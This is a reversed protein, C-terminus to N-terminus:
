FECVILRYYNCAKDNWTGDSYMEVCKETGKGGPEGPYWNTFNLPNGNLLWFEGPVYGETIGLYAHTNQQKVLNMIADNEDKRTPSAINGHAAKCIKVIDDFEATTEASAFLKDGAISIKGNLALAREIRIIRRKLEKLYNQLAPDQSAPLGPPGPNGKQGPKGMPGPPGHFWNRGSPGQPGVCPQLADCAVLLLAATALVPVLHSSWM